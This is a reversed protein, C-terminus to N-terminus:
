RRIRQAASASPPADARLTHPAFLRQLAVLLHGSWRGLGFRGAIFTDGIRLWNGGFILGWLALGAAARTFRPTHAPFDLGPRKAALEARAEVLARWYPRYIAQRLRWPMIGCQLQGSRWWWDGHLPRFRSFHFAVLPRGDFRPRGAADWAIPHSQWNWPALNVGAHDLVHVASGFQEPWATLYGQDAYRGESPQDHCWALCRARWDDLCARAAADNRFALCGKNYRGYREYHRQWPHFRHPTLLVSAGAADMAEGIATPSGFFFLDADIYVLRGIEPHEQLLWRLWCPSSTFYYEVASRGSRTAAFEPDANELEALRVVRLRPENFESLLEASYDDFALVWLVANADHAALSRWLALGQILFGRDFYTCYHNM